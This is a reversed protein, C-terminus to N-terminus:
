QRPLPAWDAPRMERFLHLWQRTLEQSTSLEKRAKLSDLEQESQGFYHGVWGSAIPRSREIFQRLTQIDCSLPFIEEVVVPKGVAFKRLVDVAKEAKGQEPYIHVSVFDVEPAITEPIFGSMHGWKEVWPLLGVTILHRKDHARIAARMRAIWKAAIQDRPRGKQDLAIAQLFDFGGFLHGSSYKDRKGSPALPENMLDYCFVTNSRACRRAISAWFFAQAEWRQEERLSEYWAPVDAPRYTALGTIDLYLREREALALLRDLRRLARENMRDPADMFKEVQFHVRVVTAGMAKMERFDGEVDAWRTEWIDEILKEGYPTCYNHGWAVFPRGSDALVFRDGVVRVRELPAGDRACGLCGLLLVAVLGYKIRDHVHTFTWFAYIVFALGNCALGLVAAAHRNRRRRLALGALFLGAAAICAGFAAVVLEWRGAAAPGGAPHYFVQVGRLSGIFFWICVGVFLACTTIALKSQPTSAGTADAGAYELPAVARPDPVSM